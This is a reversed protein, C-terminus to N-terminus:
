AGCRGPAALGVSLIFRLIEAGPGAEDLWSKVSPINAITADASPGVGYTFWGIDLRTPRQQDGAYFYHTFVAPLRGQLVYRQPNHSSPLSPICICCNNSAKRYRETGVLARVLVHMHDFLCGCESIM